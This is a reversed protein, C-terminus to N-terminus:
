AVSIIATKLKACRKRHEGEIATLAKSLPPGDPDFKSVINHTDEVSEISGNRAQLRLGERKLVNGAVDCIGLRGAVFAYAGREDIENRIRRAGVPL